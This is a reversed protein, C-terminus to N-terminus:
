RLKWAGDDVKNLTSEVSFKYFLNAYKYAGNNNKKSTNNVSSNIAM